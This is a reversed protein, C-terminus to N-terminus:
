ELGLAKLHPTWDFQFVKRQLDEIEADSMEAYPRGKFTGTDGPRTKGKEVVMLSLPPLRHAACWKELEVLDKGLRRGPMADSSRGLAVGLDSYSILEGRRAATIIVRALHNPHM